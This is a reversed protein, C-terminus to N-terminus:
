FPLEDADLINGTIDKQGTSSVYQKEIREKQESPLIAKSPNLMLPENDSKKHMFQVSDITVCLKTVQKGDKIWADQRLRGEVLLPYGKKIHLGILEATKGWATCDVFCVDDKTKSKNNIALTLKCVQMGSPIASLEPDRVCNGLLIVRNFSM